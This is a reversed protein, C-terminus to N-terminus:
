GFRLTLLRALEEPYEPQLLHVKSNFQQRALEILNNDTCWSAGSERQNRIDPDKCYEAVIQSNLVSSECFFKVEELPGGNFSRWERFGVIRGHEDTLDNFNPRLLVALGPRCFYQAREILEALTQYKDRGRWTESHEIRQEIGSGCVVWGAPTMNCPDVILTFSKM